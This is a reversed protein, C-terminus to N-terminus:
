LGRLASEDPKKLDDADLLQDDDIIDDDNVGTWAAEVTDDLKWVTPATVKGNLKLSAKSGVYTNDSERTVNVFGNLKLASILDTEDKLIFKGSPKLLKLIIALLEDSHHITHPSIFNSLVVDFSSQPRSCGSIMESNELVVSGDKTLNNIDNVLKQISNQDGNNWIILVSDGRKISNM